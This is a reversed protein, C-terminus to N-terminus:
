RCRGTGDLADRLRAAIRDNESLVKKEVAVRNM